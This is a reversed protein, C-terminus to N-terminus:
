EDREQESRGARRYVLNVSRSQENPTPKSFPQSSPSDRFTSDDVPPSRSLATDELWTAVGLTVLLAAFILVAGILLHRM